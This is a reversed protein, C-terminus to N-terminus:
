WVSLVAGILWGACGAWILVVSRLFAFPVVGSRELDTFTLCARILVVAVFLGILRDSATLGSFGLNAADSANYGGLAIVGAYLSFGTLLGIGFGHMALVGSIAVNGACGAM